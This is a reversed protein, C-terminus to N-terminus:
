ITTGRRKERRQKEMRYENSVESKDSASLNANAWFHRAFHDASGDMTDVFSLVDGYDLGRRRALALYPYSESHYPIGDEELAGAVDVIVSRLLRKAPDIDAMLAHVEKLNELVSNM